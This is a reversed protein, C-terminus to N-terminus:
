LVSVMVNNATPTIFVIMLVLYFADDIDDPINWVFHKLFLVSLIGIIPMVVMKAFIVAFTSKASLVDKPNPKTQITKSLNIGLIMM